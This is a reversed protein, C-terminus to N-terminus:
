SENQIVDIGEPATFEFRANDITPNIIIDSLEITTQQGFSDELVMASIYGDKFRLHLASFLGDSSFPVLTYNQQDATVRYTSAIRSADGSLLLAPTQALDGSFPEESAQELDIDYLWLTKGNTIVIHQYPATTHWYLQQPQKVAITGQSQQLVVDDADIITQTFQAQMSTVKALKDALDAAADALCYNSVLLLGAVIIKLKFFKM